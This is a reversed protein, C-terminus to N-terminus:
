RARMLELMVAIVKAVVLVIQDDGRVGSDLFLDGTDAPEVVDVSRGDGALCDLGGALLNGGQKALPV